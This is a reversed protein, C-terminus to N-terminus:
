SWTLSGHSITMTYQIVVMLLRMIQSHFSRPEPLRAILVTFAPYLFSRRIYGIYIYIYISIYLHSCTVQFAQKQPSDPECTRMGCSNGGRSPHSKTRCFPAGNAAAAHCRKEELQDVEPAITQKANTASSRSRVVKTDEGELDQPLGVDRVSQRAGPGGRVLACRHLRCKM